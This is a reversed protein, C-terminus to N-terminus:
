KKRKKKAAKGSLVSNILSGEAKRQNKEWLTKADHCEKCLCQLADAPCFLRTRYSDWSLFHGMPIIHDVSVVAYTQGCSHCFWGGKRKDRKKADRREPSFLWIKRLASIILGTRNYKKSKM